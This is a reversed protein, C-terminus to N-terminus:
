QGADLQDAVARLTKAILQATNPAALPTPQDEVRTSVQSKVPSGDLPQLFPSQFYPIAGDLEPHQRAGPGFAAVVNGKFQANSVM